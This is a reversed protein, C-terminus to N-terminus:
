HDTYVLSLDNCTNFIGFKIKFFLFSIMSTHKEKERLKLIM